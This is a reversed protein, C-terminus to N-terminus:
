VYRRDSSRGVLFQRIVFTLLFFAAGVIGVDMLLIKWVSPWSTHALEPFSMWGNVWSGILVWVRDAFRVLVVMTIAAYFSHNTLVSRAFYITSLTLLLLRATTFSSVEPSFVDLALGATGAVVLAEGTRERVVLLILIPIVPLVVFEIGASFTLATAEVLGILLGFVSMSM